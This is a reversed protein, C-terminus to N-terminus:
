LMGASNRRIRGTQGQIGQAERLAKSVKKFDKEWIDDNEYLDELRWKDAADIESRLPLKDM